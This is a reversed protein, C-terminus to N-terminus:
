YKDRRVLRKENDNTIRAAWSYIERGAYTKGYLGFADVPRARGM